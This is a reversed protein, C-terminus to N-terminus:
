TGAVRSFGKPTVLTCGGRVMYYRWVYTHWTMYCTQRWRKDHVPCRGTMAHLFSENEQCNNQTDGKDESIDHINSLTSCSILDDFLYTFPGNIWKFLCCSVSYVVLAQSKPKAGFLASCHGHERWSRRNGGEHSRTYGFHLHRGIRAPDRVM